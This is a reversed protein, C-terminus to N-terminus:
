ALPGGDRNYPPLAKQREETLTEGWARVVPDTLVQKAQEPSMAVYAAQAVKVAKALQWMDTTVKKVAYCDLYLEVLVDANWNHLWTALDVVHMRDYWHQNYRDIAQIVREFQSM